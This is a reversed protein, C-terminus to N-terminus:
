ILNGLNTVKWQVRIAKTNTHTLNYHINVKNINIYQM